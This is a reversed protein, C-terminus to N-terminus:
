TVSSGIYGTPFVDAFGAIAFDLSIKVGKSDQDVATESEPASAEWMWVPKVAKSLLHWDNTDTLKAWTIGTIGFSGATNVQMQDSTYQSGLAQLVTQELGTAVPYLLNWGADALDLDGDDYDKWQRALTMAAMIAGLDLASTLKNSRTSTSTPHDTAGLAKSGPVVTTTGFSNNLVAAGINGYTNEVARGLRAAVRQLLTPDHRVDLKRLRMQIGYQAYTVTKYGIDRVRAQPLDEGGDWAPVTSVSEIGNLKLSGVDDYRWGFADRWRSPVQNAGDFYADVFIQKADTSIGM